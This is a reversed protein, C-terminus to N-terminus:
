TTTIGPNVTQNLELDDGFDIDENHVKHVYDYQMSPRGTIVPDSCDKEGVTKPELKKGDSM